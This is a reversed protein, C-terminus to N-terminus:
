YRYGKKLTISFGPGNYNVYPGRRPGNYRDYVPHRHGRGRMGCWGRRSRDVIRGWRNIWLVFRRGRKCAKARYGPLRRDTFRIAHFGRRRLKNRIEPFSLGARQGGRRGDCWGIRVRRNIDGWRNLRLKYKKGARCARVRYVPLQRDTFVINYYGRGKLSRRIDVPRVRVSTTLPNVPLKKHAMAGAGAAVASGSTSLSAAVLFGMGILMKKTM